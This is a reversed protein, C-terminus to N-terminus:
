SRVYTPAPISATAVRVERGPGGFALLVHTTAALAGLLDFGAGHDLARHRDLDRQM